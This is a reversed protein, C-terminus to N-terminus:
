PLVRCLNKIKHNVKHTEVKPAKIIPNKTNLATGKM